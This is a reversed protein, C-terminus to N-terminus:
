AAGGNSVSKGEAAIANLDIMDILDWLANIQAVTGYRAALATPESWADIGTAAFDFADYIVQIAAKRATAGIEANEIASEAAALDRITGVNTCTQNQTQM